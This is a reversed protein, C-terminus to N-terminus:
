IKPLNKLLESLENKLIDKKGLADAVSYLAICLKNIEEDNIGDNKKSFNNINSSGSNTQQKIQQNHNGHQNFSTTEVDNFIDEYIGLERCKKKIANISKRQKWKSITTAPTNIHTSLDKFSSVNYFYFLKDFITDINNVFGGYSM